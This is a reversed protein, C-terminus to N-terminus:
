GAVTTSARTPAPTARGVEPRPAPGGAVAAVCVGVSPQTGAGPRRGRLAPLGWPHVQPADVLGRRLARWWGARLQAGSPLAVVMDWGAREALADVSSAHDLVHVAGELAGLLELADPPAGASLLVVEFDDGDLTDGEVQALLALAADRGDALDVVVGVRHPEPAPSGPAEPHPVPRSGRPSGVTRSPRSVLDALRAAVVETPGDWGLARGADAAVAGARVREDPQDVVHRLTAALDDVDPEKWWLPGAAPPLDPPPPLPVTPALVRFGAGPPVFEDTPGGESVVVPLGCGMAEAVPLGYGEGRYPHVLVDCARYLAAVGDHDLDDEVLLIEPSGPARQLQEVVPALSSGRYVTGSGFGKIVLCVDDGARFARVYANLLTDIGKRAITGGVFLLRTSAHTALDLRPGDPHFRTTDIGLPVVTVQEAPVGSAVFADRVWRSPVWLEDIHAAADVWAQPVCGFEWPQLLVLRGARTPRLDPPWQHRVTVATGPSPTPRGARALPELVGAPALDYGERQPGIELRLEGRAALRTVLERNVVSLSHHRFLAGEWRVRPQEAM